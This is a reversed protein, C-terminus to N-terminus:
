LYGRMQMDVANAVVANPVDRVPRLDSQTWAYACSNVFEGPRDAVFFPQARRAHASFPNWESAVWTESLHAVSMSLDLFRQRVSAGLWQGGESVNQDIDIVEARDFSVSGVYQARQPVETVAGFQIVGLTPPASASSIRIRWYRASVVAFLGFLATNNPAVTLRATWDTNNASSEVVVTAAQAGLDHAAIGVYSVSVASGADIAWTAPAETPRWFSDTRPNGANSAAFGAEATSASITGTIRRWGIRPYNLPYTTGTFGAAIHVAM